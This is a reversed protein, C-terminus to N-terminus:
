DQNKKRKSSKGQLKEKDLNKSSEKQLTAKNTKKQLSQDDFLEKGKKEKSNLSTSFEQTSPTSNKSTTLKRKKNITTYSKKAIRNQSIQLLRETLVGFFIKSSFDTHLLRIALNNSLSREAISQLYRKNGNKFNNKNLKATHESFWKDNTLSSNKFLNKSNKFLDELITESSNRVINNEQQLSLSLSSGLRKKRFKLIRSMEPLFFKLQFIYFGFFFVCLWFFQSLFTVKDLQPM